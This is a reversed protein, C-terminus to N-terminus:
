FAWKIRMTLLLWRLPLMKLNIHSSTGTKLRQYAWLTSFSEIELNSVNRSMKITQMKTSSNGKTAIVVAGTRIAKVETTKTSDGETVLVVEPLTKVV